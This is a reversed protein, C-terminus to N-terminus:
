RRSVGRENQSGNWSAMKESYIHSERINRSSSNVSVITIVLYFSFYTVNRWAVKADHQRITETRYITGLENVKKLCDDCSCM